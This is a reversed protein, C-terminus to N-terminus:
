AVAKILTLSIKFNCFTKFDSVCQVLNHLCILSQWLVLMQKRLAHSSKKKKFVCNFLYLMKSPSEKKLESFFHQAVLIM